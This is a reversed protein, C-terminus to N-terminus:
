RPKRAEIRMDRNMRKGHFQPSCEVVEVFGAKKLAGVLEGPLWGWKHMMYPNQMTHDGFIGQRGEQHPKGSVFAKCCKMLDPLELILRAKPKLVSFWNLLIASVEWVYFHEIVHIAMMEDVSNAPLPLHRIDCVFDADDAIDVGVWGDIKKRGCGVNLRLPHTALLSAIRSADVAVMGSGAPVQAEGAGIPEESQM